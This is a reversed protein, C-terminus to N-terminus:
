YIKPIITSVQPKALMNGNPYFYKVDVGGTESVKIHKTITVGYQSRHPKGKAQLKLGREFIDFMKQKGEANDFINLKKLDMKNQLARPTNHSDPKVGRGFFYDWKSQKVVVNPFGKLSNLSQPTANAKGFAVRKLLLLDIATAGVEEGINGERKYKETQYEFPRPVEIEPIAPLKTGTLNEVSESL